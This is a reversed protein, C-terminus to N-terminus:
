RSKNLEEKLVELYGLGYKIEPEMYNGEAWENWSKIFIIKENDPRELTWRIAQNLQERFNEPNSNLMVMGNKGSRPTNDWNPLLCPFILTNDVPSDPAVHPILMDADFVSPADKFVKNIENIPTPPINVQTIAADFGDSRHDWMLNWTLGIFHIGSLGNERALQSWLQTFRKKDPIEIPRFIIFVPMENIKLYRSDRFAPLLAYFHSIYDEDGPYTQEILLDEPCGYWTGTWSQNAWCLVFPFNPEGTELVQNFPTELVRKGAFWYHYYCFANVGYTRALIAQDERVKSDRLDYYGLETPTIPQNHGEYLPLAKRVNTWETFDKGWFIDNEPIPHYQPLYFAIVKLTV